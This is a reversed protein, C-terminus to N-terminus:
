DAQFPWGTDDRVEVVGLLDTLRQVADAESEHLLGLLSHLDGTMKAVAGDAPTGDVETEITVAEAALRLTQVFHEIRQARLSRLARGHRESTIAGGGAGLRPSTYRRHAMGIQQLMARDLVAWERLIADLAERVGSEALSRVADRVQRESATDRCPEICVPHVLLLWDRNVTWRADEALFEAFAEVIRTAELEYTRERALRARADQRIRAVEEPPRAGGRSTNISMRLSLRSREEQEFNRRVLQTLRVDAAAIRALVVAAAAPDHLAAGEMQALIFWIPDTASLSRAHVGCEWHVLREFRHTVLDARLRQGEALFPFVQEALWKEYARSVDAMVRKRVEFGRAFLAREHESWNGRRAADYARVQIPFLDQEAAEILPSLEDFVLQEASGGLKALQDASLNFVRLSEIIRTISPVSPLRTAYGVQAHGTRCGIWCAGVVFMWM